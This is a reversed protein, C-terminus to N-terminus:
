KLISLGIGCELCRFKDCYEKKLQLLSQTNAANEAKVGLGAWGKIVANSEPGCSELLRLAKDCYDENGKHKGYAFLVPAIANILLVDKMGAGMHSNVKVSIKDFQYHTKWYDNVPADLLRRLSKATGSAIIGSFLKVEKGMLAALQALRVTPFNSPRLRLFKWTHKELPQLQYLRKLYNYEKRLRNPYEDTFKEDLFGAQGFVLAEIQLPDDQHKAWIKVPLSRALGMFPDKNLGAGLYAALTQFMVNEWDNESAALLQNIQEVKNELREIMLRELFATIVMPNVAGIFKSCPIWDRRMALQEYRSLMEPKIRNKLELTTVAEGSHRLAKSHGADYVVHLVVNNYAKDRHHKHQFWDGAQLHMEVNGAWLTPGIRIRANEFDAGAHSNYVGRNVIEVPEGDTTTLQHHDFLGFKWIFHLLRENM